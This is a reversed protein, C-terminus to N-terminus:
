RGGGHLLLSRLNPLYSTLRDLEMKSKASLSKEGEDITKLVDIRREIFQLYLIGRITAAYLCWLTIFSDHAIIFVTTLGILNLWGFIQISVSRSLILSGCTTLIYLLAIWTHNTASNHYVLFHHKIYVQVPTTVLEWSVYVALLGGSIVLLGILIRKLGPPELLWIALPVLFPLAAQAYFVFIISAIKLTEHTGVGYLGLWVIGQIFQHFGFLLPLSAFVLERPASTKRLTLVGIVLLVGALTFNGIIFFM